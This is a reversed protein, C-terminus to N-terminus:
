VEKIAENEYHGIKWPAGNEQTGQKRCHGIKWPAGNEQTGQKRCHGIKWPETNEPARYDSERDEPARNITSQIGVVGDTQGDM